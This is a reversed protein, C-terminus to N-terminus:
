GNEATSGGPTSGSDDGHWLPTTGNSWCGM